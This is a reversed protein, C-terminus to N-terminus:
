RPLGANKVFCDGDTVILNKNVRDKNLCYLDPHTELGKIGAPCSDNKRAEYCGHSGKKRECANKRM